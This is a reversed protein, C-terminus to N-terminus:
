SRWQDGSRRWHRTDIQPVKVGSNVPRGRTISPNSRIEASLSPVQSNALTSSPHYCPKLEGAKTEGGRPYEPSFARLTVVCGSQSGSM